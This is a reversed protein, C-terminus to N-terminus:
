NGLWPHFWARQMPLMTKVVPVGPLAQLTKYQRFESMFKIDLIIELM